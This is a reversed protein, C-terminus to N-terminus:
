GSPCQDSLHLYLLSQEIGSLHIVSDGTRVQRGLIDIEMEGLRITPIIPVRSGRARRTIV